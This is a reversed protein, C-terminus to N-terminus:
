RRKEGILSLFNGGLIKARDATSIPLELVKTMEIGPHLWPGDSGFIVKHAGGRKVADELIDFRRVSSTDTYVNPFRELYQIFSMQIQWKDAFAGLHPVIFRV